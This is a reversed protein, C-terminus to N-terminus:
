NIAVFPPEVDRFDIGLTEFHKKACKIKTNETGRRETPDITGKTERVLYLKLGGDEKLIAWDPNYGGIPTDITFWKPLKIYFKITPDRNLKDAYSKEVSSDLVMLRYPSKDSEAIKRMEEIIEEDKFLSMEFEQGEVKEYKIGDLILEKLTNLVIVVIQDLFQQPNVRVDEIRGSRLLIDCISKRTLEIERQIYSIIDPIEYSMDVFDTRNHFENGVVGQGDIDVNVKIIQIKPKQIAPMRSIAQSANEILTNSDLGVSYTTKKNIKEWLAKFEHDELVRTNPRITKRQRKEKVLASLEHRELLDAIKYKIAEFSEGVTFSNNRISEAFANTVKYNADLYGNTLLIIHLEEAKKLAAEDTEDRFLSKLKDIKVIGFEVGEAIYENQLQRAFQEYHENAIVVLKNVNNDFVREGNQNVPIRLGRGIQQRKTMETNTENLTCIQFVNPNDWGERLASHSFIFRLPESFSLLQEKNKMIKDYTSTDQEGVGTTDVLRGQRDQSFYGDHIQHLDHQIIGQYQNLQSLSTYEEEFWKAYKGKQPNGHDDYYRYNAVRDIFFLSLVKIGLEKVKKEKELHEKITERIQFRKIEDTMGGIANGRELSRGDNFKIYGDGEDTLTIESIIFGDRYEEREGSLMFLDTGNKVWKQKVSYRATGTDEHYEIKARIGNSNDLHLLKIYAGNFTPEDLVSAVVIQKVLGLEFAQVPDLRYMLNYTERHTASYRLIFLPNLSKIANKGNPTNDISQPEDLIVIPKVSAIFEKPARGSLRDAERHFLTANREDGVAQVDRQFAQINMIMIQITNSTAYQRVKGPKKSNYVFYEFPVEDYLEKFHDKTIELNKLVGERIAVSPVVIIFKKYGYRKNLELITRLYVYTKGTGTEMEVTFNPFSYEESLLQKSETLDNKRQIKRVNDLLQEDPLTLVNGVGLESLLETIGTLQFSSDSQDQPLGEFINVISDVADIQYRQNADFKLKM